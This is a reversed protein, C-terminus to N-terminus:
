LLIWSKREDKVGVVVAISGFGGGGSGGTLTSPLLLFGVCLLVIGM